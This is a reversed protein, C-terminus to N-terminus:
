FKVEGQGSTKLSIHGTAIDMRVTRNLNGGVAQKWIAVNERTLIQTLATYNLQGINFRKEQTIIQAGGAVFVRIRTKEAGLLYAQQFLTSIGTDAFMLPQDKAKIEDISSDTLIYHLIGGVRAEPDYIVLGIGSGISPTVITDGVQNSVKM